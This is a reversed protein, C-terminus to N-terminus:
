NLINKWTDTIQFMQNHNSQSRVFTLPFAGMSLDIAAFHEFPYHGLDSDFKIERFIFAIIQIINTTKTTKTTESLLSLLLPFHSRLYDENYLLLVNM